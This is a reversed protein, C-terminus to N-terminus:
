FFGLEETFLEMSVPPVTLHTGHHTYPLELKKFIDTLPDLDSCPIFEYDAARNHKTQVLYYFMNANYTITYTPNEDRRCVQLKSLKEDIWKLYFEQPLKM